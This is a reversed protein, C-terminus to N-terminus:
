QILEVSRKGTIRGFIAALQQSYQDISGQAHFHVGNGVEAIEEMLDQDADQGVTVAIIQM